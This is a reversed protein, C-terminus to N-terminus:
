EYITVLEKEIKKRIRPKLKTILDVPRGLSESLKSQISALQILSLPPRSDSDKLEILLDIDSFEDHEGRAVSGFVWIRKAYPALVPVAVEQVRRIIVERSEGQEQVGPM